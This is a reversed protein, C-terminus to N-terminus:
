FLLRVGAFFNFRHVEEEVIETVLNNNVDYFDYMINRDKWQALQVGTDFYFDRSLRISAGASYFMRAADEFDRRPSPHYAFGGRFTFQESIAYGIGSRFNFVDDFEQRILRNETNDILSSSGIESMEISNYDVYEASVSIDLESSPSFTLGANYRNPPDFKYTNRGEFEDEDFFNDIFESNIYTTFRESVEYTTNRLAGVGIQLMDSVKYVLGARINFGSISATIEDELFIHRIDYDHDRNPPTELFNLRYNYNGVPFGMSVGVFLNEQFETALFINIEGMQGWEELTVNQNVGVFPGPERWVSFPDTDGDWDDLAWANFATEFYYDSQLFMDTITNQNNFVDYNYGRNFDALQAYGFGVTLDGQNVPFKYILSLDGISLQNDSYSDRSNRYDAQEEIYRNSFSISLGSTPVLAMTAPNMLASGMSLGQSSAAGGYGVNLADQGPYWNSFRLADYRNQATSEQPLIWFISVALTILSLTFRKM